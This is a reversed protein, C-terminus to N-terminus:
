SKFAQVFRKNFFHARNLLLFCAYCIFQSGKSKDSLCSSKYFYNENANLKFFKEIQISKQSNLSSKILTEPIKKKSISHSFIKLNECSLKLPQTYSNLARKCLLCQAVYKRTYSPAIKKALKGITSSVFRFSITLNCIFSETINQITLSKYLKSRIYNNRFNNHIHFRYYSYIEDVFCYKLPHLFTVPFASNAKLYDTLFSGTVISHVIKTALDNALDDLMVLHCNFKKAAVFTIKKYLRCLIDQKTTEDRISNIFRRLVEVERFNKQPVSSYSNKITVDKSVFFNSLSVVYNESRLTKNQRISSVM